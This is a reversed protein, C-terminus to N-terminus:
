LLKMPMTKLDGMNFSNPMEMAQSVFPTVLDNMQTQYETILKLVYNVHVWTPTPIFSFEYIIDKSIFHKSNKYGM